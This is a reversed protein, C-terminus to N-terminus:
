KQNMGTGNCTECDLLEKGFHTDFLIKGDGKCDKCQCRKCYKPMQLLTARVICNCLNCILASREKSYKISM